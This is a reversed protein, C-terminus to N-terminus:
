RIMSEVFRPVESKLRIMGLEIGIEMANTRPVGRVFNAYIDKGTSKSKWHLPWNGLSGHDITGHNFWLALPKEEDGWSNIVDGENDGTKRFSIGDVFKKPVNAARAAGKVEPIMYRDMLMSMNKDLIRNVEEVQEELQAQVLEVSNVDLKLSM